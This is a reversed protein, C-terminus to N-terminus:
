GAVAWGALEWGTVGGGPRESKRPEGHADVNGRNEDITSSHDIRGTAGARISEERSGGRLSPARPDDDLAVSGLLQDRGSALLADPDNLRAYQGLAITSLRVL